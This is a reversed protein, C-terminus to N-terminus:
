EHNSIEKNVADIFRQKDFAANDSKMASCMSHICQWAAVTNGDNQALIRGLDEALQVYTKRTM